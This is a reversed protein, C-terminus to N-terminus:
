NRTSNSNLVSTNLLQVVSIDVTHCVDKIRVRDVYEIVEEYKIKVETEKVSRKLESDFIAQQKNLAIQMEKGAKLVAKNTEKQVLENTVSQMEVMAKNYGRNEFYATIALLSAAAGLGAFIWKLKILYYIFM